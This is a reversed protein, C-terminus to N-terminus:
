TLNQWSTLLSSFEKALTQRPNKNTNIRFGTQIGAPLCGSLLHRDRLTPGFIVTRKGGEGCSIHFCVGSGLHAHCGLHRQKFHTQTQRQASVPDEGGDTAENNRSKHATQESSQQQFHNPTLVVSTLGRGNRGSCSIHQSVCLTVASRCNRSLKTSIMLSDDLGSRGSDVMCVLQVRFEQLDM